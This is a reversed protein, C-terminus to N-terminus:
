PITNHQNVVGGAISEVDKSTKWRKMGQDSGAPPDKDKDKDERGRKLSVAKGYVLFLDKDINYSNVLAKYLEKHENATLNSQSKEIKPLIQPLQTKVEDNIIDKVSTSLRKAWRPNTKRIVNVRLPIILVIIHHLFYLIVFKIFFNFRGLKHRIDQVIWSTSSMSRIYLCVAIEKVFDENEIILCQACYRLEVSKEILDIYRKKETQAEKKFEVTYSQLAKQISDEVRTGLHADVMALIQSKITTLLQASQDAQKLEFLGQTDDEVQDYTTEQTVNDHGVDTKEADGKGEERHEVDKLKVNMDKYLEEDIRDYEEENGHENEDDTSEYNVPTRMYEDEYEEERDDDNQNDDSEIGEDDSADNNGDDNESQDKPVDPVGPITGTVKNIGTTKDQLEDPVKPQSSVGDGSGSAQHSHTERKSRKLIKKVQCDELLAVEYLLDIGKSRDTTAPAKKNSVSVDPTDRIQVGISQKRSSSVDKKAPASKKAPKPHKARKSKKAPEEELVLIQKKTPSAIKKFKRAKRPTAERNAFVLYIKYEKSDQIAQNIMQEPILAGYKHYDQTSSIDRNDVQFMFDEWLLAVFDVNKKYFMGWLIQARSPRLRDLCTSKGSICKGTYGLDETDNQFKQKDMKFQYADTDKIKKITNDLTFQLTPERQPKNFEITMNCKEIKLRKKPAVLANDLAVQQAPIPNM